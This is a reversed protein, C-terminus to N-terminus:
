QLQGTVMSVKSVLIHGYKSFSEFRRGTTSQNGIPRRLIQKRNSSIISSWDGVTRHKYVILATAPCCARSSRVKTLCLALSSRYGLAIHEYM